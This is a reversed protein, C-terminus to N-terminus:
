GDGRRLPCRLGTAHRRSQPAHAPHVLADRPDAARAARDQAGIVAARGPLLYDHGPIGQVKAVDIGNILLSSVNQTDAGARGRANVFSSVRSRAPSQLKAVIVRLGKEVRRSKPVRIM